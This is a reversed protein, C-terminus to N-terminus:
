ASLTKKTRSQVENKQIERTGTEEDRGTHEAQLWSFRNVEPDDNEGRAGRVTQDQPLISPPEVTRPNIGHADDFTNRVANCVM